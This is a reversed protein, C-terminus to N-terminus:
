RTRKKEAAEEEILERCRKILILSIEDIDSESVGRNYFYFLMESIERVFKDQNGMSMPKQFKAPIVLKDVYKDM